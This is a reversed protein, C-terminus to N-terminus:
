AGRPRGAAVPEDHAHAPVARAREDEHAAGASLLLALTMGVLPYILYSTQFVRGLFLLLFISVAFGVAGSALERSRLQLRVLWATVPLWM